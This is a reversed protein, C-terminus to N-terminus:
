PSKKAGRAVEHIFDLKQSVEPAIRGADVYNALMHYNTKRMLNPLKLKEFFM